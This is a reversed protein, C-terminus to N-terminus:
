ELLDVAKLYQHAALSWSWKKAHSLGKMVLDAAMVKSTILASMAEAIEEPYNPDILLGANGIVEAMATTNSSIVPIGCAMAELPPIGFGEAFSPYVFLESARYVDPLLDDDISEIIMVSDHLRLKHIVHFIETYRYDRQGVIVLPGININKEKLLAYAYVLGIHNKRPELRGVTLIYNRINLNKEVNECAAVRDGCSFRGLDVGNPVVHINEEPLKYINILEQRSFESVTHIQAANKSSYKILLKNRVIDITPFFQPHSEYLVDHITVLSKCSLYMPSIYNCHLVNLKSRKALRAAQYTLRKWRSNSPYNVYEYQEGFYAKEWNGFFIFEHEHQLSSIAHYLGALYTRSGQYKGSLVHCDVGIRM